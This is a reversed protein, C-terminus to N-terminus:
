DSPFGLRRFAELEEGKQAGDSLLKLAALARPGCNVEDIDQYEIDPYLVGRGDKRGRLTVERPPPFGFSDFYMVLPQESSVRVACWHTGGQSYNGDLNIVCSTGPAMPHGPPYLEDYDSRSVVGLFGPINAKGWADLETDSTLRNGPIRGDNEPSNEEREQSASGAHIAGNGKGARRPAGRHPAGGESSRLPALGAGWRGEPAGSKHAGRLQARSLGRGKTQWMRILKIGPEPGARTAYHASRDPEVQRYRYYHLKADVLPVAYGNQHLWREAADETWLTRDFIVSQTIDGGVSM